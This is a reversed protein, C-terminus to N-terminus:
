RARGTRQLMGTATESGNAAARELWTIAESPDAPFHDGFVRRGHLLMLGLTQQALTHGAVAAQRLWPLAALENHDDLAMQAQRWADNADARGPPSVLSLVILVPALLCRGGPFHIGM